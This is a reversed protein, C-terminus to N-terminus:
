KATFRDMDEKPFVKFLTMVAIMFRVFLGYQGKTFRDLHYTTILSMNMSVFMTYLMLPIVAYHMITVMLDWGWYAYIMMGIWAGIGMGVFQLADKARPMFRFKLTDSKHVLRLAGVLNIIQSPLMLVFAIICVYQLTSTLFHHM